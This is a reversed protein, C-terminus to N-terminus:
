QNIYFKLNKQTPQLPPWTLSPKNCGRAGSTFNQLASLFPSNVKRFQVRLNPIFEVEAGFTPWKLLQRVLLIIGTPPTPWSFCKEFQDLNIPKVINDWTNKKLFISSKCRIHAGGICDNVCKPCFGFHSPSGAQSNKALGKTQEGNLPAPRHLPATSNFAASLIPIPNMESLIGM